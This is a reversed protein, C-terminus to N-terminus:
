GLFSFSFSNSFLAVLSQFINRTNKRVTDLLSFISCFNAGGNQSRFSGAVKMKLKSLRFSREAINNSFPVRFDTFFRIVCDKFDRLRELLSLVKGKKPRGRKPTNSEKYPNNSFGSKLIRDYRKSFDQVMKLPASSIGKELLKQKTSYMDSLLKKFGTAWSQNCNQIVGEIERDIHAGCVAHTSNKFYETSYSGWCDHVATGTFHPLIDAAAIGEVGRKAHTSIHTIKETAATHAWNVKGNVRIGTEDFHIVDSTLIHERLEPILTSCRKACESIINCVTGESLSIGTFGNVLECIRSISVMGLSSLSVVMAKIHSGYQQRTNVGEPFSGVFTEGSSPCLRKTRDYRSQESVIRVDVVHRSEIVTLPSKCSSALKCKLCESPLCVHIVDPTEKLEMTSGTHGKQGGSSKPKRSSRDGRNISSPKPKNFFDSSPPKSSNGSNKNLREKLEAIKVDQSLITQTLVTVQFRLEKNENSLERIKGGLLAIEDKSSDSLSM